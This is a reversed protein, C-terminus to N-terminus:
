MIVLIYFLTLVISPDPMGPHVIYCLVCHYLLMTHQAVNYMGSHWVGVEFRMALGDLPQAAADSCISASGGAFWRATKNDKCEPCLVSMGSSCLNSHHASHQRCGAEVHDLISAKAVLM